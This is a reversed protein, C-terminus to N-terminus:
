IMNDKGVKILTIGINQSLFNIKRVEVLVLKHQGSRFVVALHLGNLHM